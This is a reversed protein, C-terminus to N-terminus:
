QRVLAKEQSILLSHALNAGLASITTHAKNMTVGAGLAADVIMYVINKGTRDDPLDSLVCHAYEMIEDYTFRKITPRFPYSM